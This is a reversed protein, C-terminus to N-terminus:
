RSTGSSGSSGGTAGSAGSSSGGTGSSSGSAGSGSSSGSRNFSSGAGAGLNGGTDTNVLAALVHHAVMRYGQNQDAPWNQKDALIMSVHRQLNSQLQNADVTDPIDLKWDNGGGSKTLPVYVTPLNQESPIVVTVSNGIENGNARDAGSSSSSRDSGSGRSATSGSGSYGGGSASSAGGGTAGAAGSASSGYGSGSTGATSGSTGGIGSSGSM